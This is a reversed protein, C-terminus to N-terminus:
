ASYALNEKESLNLFDFLIKLGGFCASIVGILLSVATSAGFVVMATTIIYGLNSLIGWVAGQCIWLLNSKEEENRPITSRAKEYVSINEEVALLNAFLFCASGVSSVAAFLRGLNIYAFTHLTEFASCAGTAILLSGHAKLYLQPSESLSEVTCPPRKLDSYIEFSGYGLFFAGSCAKFYPLALDYVKKPLESNPPILKKAASIAPIILQKFASVPSFASIM